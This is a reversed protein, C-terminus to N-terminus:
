DNPPLFHYQRAVCVCVFLVSILFSFFFPLSRTRSLIPVDIPVTNGTKPQLTIECGAHVQFRTKKEVKRKTSFIRRLLSSPLSPLLSPPPLFHSPFPLIENPKVMRVRMVFM